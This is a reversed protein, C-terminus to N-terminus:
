NQDLVNEKFYNTSVAAKKEQDLRDRIIRCYKNIYKEIDFPEWEIGYFTFIEEFTDQLINEPMWMDERFSRVAGVFHNKTVVKESFLCDHFEYLEESDKLDLALILQYYHDGEAALDAHTADGNEVAERRRRRRVREHKM